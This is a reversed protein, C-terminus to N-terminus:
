AGKNFIREIGDPVLFSARSIARRQAQMASKEALTVAEVHVLSKPNDLVGSQAANRVTREWAQKNEYTDM